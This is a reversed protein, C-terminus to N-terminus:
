YNLSFSLIHWNVLFAAYGISALMLLSNWIRTWFWLNFERWSRVFYWIGVLAGLVDLLALLQLVRLRGDFRSSLLGINSEVALMCAGLAVLLLINLACVTRMLRRARRYELSLSLRERYHRRLMANIPWFLLTV